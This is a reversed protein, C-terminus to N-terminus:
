VTTTISRRIIGRTNTITFANNLSGYIRIGSVGAKHLVSIGPLNYGLRYQYVSSAAMRCISPPFGRVTVRPARGRHGLSMDTVLSRRAGTVTPLKKMNTARVKM